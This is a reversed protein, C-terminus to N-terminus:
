GGWGRESEVGEREFLHSVNEEDEAIICRRRGGWGWERVRGGVREWL